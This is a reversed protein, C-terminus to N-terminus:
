ADNNRDKRVRRIPRTEDDDDQAAMPATLDPEFARTEDDDSADSSRDSDAPPPPLDSTSRIVLDEAERQRRAEEEAERQRRAEEEADRQRRAEEEAERQRRAEEEAERQRRAEEEAERQRERQQQAEDRVRVAEDDLRTLAREWRDRMPAIGGGGVAVVTVGVVIALVAYFLGTVITPAVALQDLAAFVGLGVILVYAATALAGGYSLGGILARIIDRVAAAVAAAVILLAIAVVIRPVFAILRQLLSSAPNPGFIGFALQLVLLMLGYFVLMSLLGGVDHGSRALAERIGGRDLARGVGFRELLANVARQLARAVLYGVFLIAIFALLKILLEATGILTPRVLETQALVIM